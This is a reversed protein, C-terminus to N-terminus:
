RSTTRRPLLGALGQELDAAHEVVFCLRESRALLDRLIRVDDDDDDILLVRIVSPRRRTRVRRPKM